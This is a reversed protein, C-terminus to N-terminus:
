DAPCMSTKTSGASVGDFLSGGGLRNNAKPAFNSLCLILLVASSTQQLRAAVDQEADILLCQTAFAVFRFETSCALM